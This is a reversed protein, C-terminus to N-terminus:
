ITQKSVFLASNAHILATSLIWLKSPFPSKWHNQCRALIFGSAVDSKQPFFAGMMIERDFEIGTHMFEPILAFGRYFVGGGVMRSM